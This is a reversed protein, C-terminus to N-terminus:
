NKMLWRYQSFIFLSEYWLKGCGIISDLTNINQQCMITSCNQTMRRAFIFPIPAQILHTHFRAFLSWTWVFRFVHVEVCVYVRERLVVIAVPFCTIEFSFIMTQKANKNTNPRIFLLLISFYACLHEWWFVHITLAYARAHLCVAPVGISNNNCNITHTFINIWRAWISFTSNSCSHSEDPKNQWLLRSEQIRHCFASWVYENWWWFIVRHVRREIRGIKTKTSFQSNGLLPEMFAFKWM